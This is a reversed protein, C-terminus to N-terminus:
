TVLVTVLGFYVLLSLVDQIITAVPGSGLAPDVGLRSLLWPLLLGISTATGGAVVIATAVAVALPPSGFAFWVVPLALLALCLGILLGTGFEGLVLRVVSTQNFSLGRVAVAESQTGIADALYVIGPVFFAVALQSALAQEFRAMVLTALGSGALGVLLWPLRESARRLPPADIAQVAQRARQHIGVLRHMDEIHERRLIDILTAAPVVGLLREHQDVVPVASVRSRLALSAVQEQDLEPRARPPQPDMIESLPQAPAAAMLDTLPVLGILHADEDTVYVADLVAYRTGALRDRVAGATDLPRARPVQPLLHHAATESHTRNAPAPASPLAISM